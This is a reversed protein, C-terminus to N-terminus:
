MHAALDSNCILLFGPGVCGILMSWRKGTQKHKQLQMRRQKWDQTNQVKQGFIEQLLDDTAVSATSRGRSCRNSLEPNSHLQEFYWFLLIRAVRLKIPDVITRQDLIEACHFSKFLNETLSGDFPSCPIPTNWLGAHSSKLYSTIFDVPDERFFSDGAKIVEIIQAPTLDFDTDEGYKSTLIDFSRLYHSRTTAPDITEPSDNHISSESRVVNMAISQTDLTRRARKAACHSQPSSHPIPCNRKTQRHAMNTGVQENSTNSECSPSTDTDTSHGLNDNSFQTPATVQLMSLPNLTAVDGDRNDTTECDASQRTHSADLGEESAMVQDCGSIIPSSQAPFMSVNGEGDGMSDPIDTNDSPPV